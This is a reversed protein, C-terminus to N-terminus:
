SERNVVSIQEEGSGLMYEGFQANTCSNIDSSGHARATLGATRAGGTDLIVERVTVGYSTRNSSSLAVKGTAEM